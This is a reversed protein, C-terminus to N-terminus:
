SSQPRAQHARKVLELRVERQEDGPRADFNRGRFALVPEVHAVTLIM